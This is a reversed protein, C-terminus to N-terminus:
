TLRSARIVRIDRICIIIWGQVMFMKREEAKRRDGRKKDGGEGRM